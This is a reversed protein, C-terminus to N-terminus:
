APGRASPSSIRPEGRPKTAVRRPPFGDRYISTRVSEDAGRENPMTSPAAAITETASMALQEAAGLENVVVAEPEVLVESVVARDEDGPRSEVVCAGALGTSSTEVVSSAVAGGAPEM